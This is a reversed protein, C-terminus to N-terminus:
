LSVGLLELMVNELAEIRETETPLRASELAEEEKGLAEMEATEEETMDMYQGNLWKRM